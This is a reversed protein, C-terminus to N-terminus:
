SILMAARALAALIPEHKEGLAERDHEGDLRAVLARASDPLAISEGRLNTVQSGRRALVRSWASAKPKPGPTAIWPPASTRLELIGSALFLGGLTAALNEARVLPELEAFPLARPAISALHLLAAKVVRDSTAIRALPGDFTVPSDDLANAGAPSATASCAVFMARVGAFDLTRALPAERRCFLSQRVRRNVLIDYYQEAFVLEDPARARARDAQPTQAHDASLAPEAECLYGLGMRRARAALKHFHVPRHGAGLWEDALRADDFTAVWKAEERVAVELAAGPGGDAIWALFARARALREAPDKVARLDFHLMDRLVDVHRAGPYTDYSLFAVGNPTLANAVAALLRDQVDVSLLSFVGDVLVYDFTAKTPVLDGLSAHRLDVNALGAEVLLARAAEVHEESPDIGVCRANPLSAGIAGLSEGAGRAIELVRCTEVRPAEIGHLRAVVALRDPHKQPSPGVV